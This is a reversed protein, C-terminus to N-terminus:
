LIYSCFGSNKRLKRFNEVLVQFQLKKLNSNRLNKEPVQSISGSQNEGVFTLLYLVFFFRVTEGVSRALYLNRLCVLIGNVPKLVADLHRHAFDPDLFIEKKLILKFPHQLTQQHFVTTIEKILVFSTTLILPTVFLYALVSIFSYCSLSLLLILGFFFIACSNNWNRWLFVDQIGQGLSHFNRAETRACQSECIGGELTFSRNDFFEFLDSDLGTRGLPDSDGPTVQHVVESLMELQDVPKLSALDESFTFQDVIGIFCDTSGLIMWDTL